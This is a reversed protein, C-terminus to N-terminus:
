SRSHTFKITLLIQIAVQVLYVLLQVYAAGYIGFAQVFPASLVATLVLAVVTLAAISGTHRAATLIGNFFSAGSGRCAYLAAQGSGLCRTRRGGAACVRRM